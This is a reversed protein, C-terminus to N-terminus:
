TGATCSASSSAPPPSGTSRATCSTRSGATSWCAAPQGPRGPRWWRPAPARGPGCAWWALVLLLLGVAPLFRSHVLSLYSVVAALAWATGVRDACPGDGPFPRGCGAPDDWLRLVLWFAAAVLIGLLAEPLAYGTYLARGPAVAVLSAVLLAARPGAGVRRAVAAWVVVALSALVVNVAVTVHMFRVPDDLPRWLPAVLLGWGASYGGAYPPM